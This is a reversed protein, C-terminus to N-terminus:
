PPVASSRSQEENSGRWWARIRCLISGATASDSNEMLLVDTQKADPVMFPVLAISLTPLVTAILSAIWLNDFESGEDVGGTPDVGLNGLVFAGLFQAISSGFNHCGALLAFMTAEMGKPCMQSLMVMGPMWQWQRVAEQASTSGLVFLYDPIGWSLNVRTFVVVDLLCVVCYAVNGLYLLSSYKWHKFWRNYAFLGLVSFVSSTLGLVTTFFEMSFHPGDPYATDDDTYFYFTAGRIGVTCSAQLVFFTNLKAIDPRLILQFALLLVVLCASAIVMNTWLSLNALGVASLIIVGMLMLVALLFIEWEKLLRHREQTSEERSKQVEGLDNRFISYLVLSSPLLCLAFVVHPGHFQLLPGVLLQALISALYIGVWVFTVLDPGRSPKRNIAESYKAEVMLDCVATQMQVGFLTAVVHNIPFGPPAFGLSYFSMLGVISALIMYPSKNYGNMPVLDSLVGVVPKLSWPMLIIGDYVQRQSASLAYQGYLYQTAPYVLQMTFGKLMHQSTILVALLSFGYEEQLGALWRTATGLAGDSDVKYALLKRGGYGDDQDHKHLLLPLSEASKSSTLLPRGEGGPIHTSSAAESNTTSSKSKTASSKSNTTSGKAPLPAPASPM